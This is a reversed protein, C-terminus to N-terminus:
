ATVPVIKTIPTLCPGCIVLPNQESAKVEIEIGKNECNKVLCTVLYDALNPVSEM